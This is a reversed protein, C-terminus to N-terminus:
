SMCGLVTKWCGELKCVGRSTSLVARGRSVDAKYTEAQKREDEINNLLEKVKKENRRITRHATARERNALSLHTNPSLTCHHLGQSIAAM